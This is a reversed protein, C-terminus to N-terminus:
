SIIRAVPEKAYRINRGFSSKIINRIPGDVRTYNCTIGIHGVIIIDESSVHDEAPAMGKHMRVRARAGDHFAVSKQMACRASRPVIGSASQVKNRSIIVVM